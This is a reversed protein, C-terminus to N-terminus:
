IFIRFHGSKSLAHSKQGGLAFEVGIMRARLTNMRLFAPWGAAYRSLVIMGYRDSGIAV